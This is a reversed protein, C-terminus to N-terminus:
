EYWQAQARYMETYAGGKALLDAHTGDEVIRGDRLVIIRDVLSTIGLRHSILITTRDGTLETFNRYLNAEAIPDLAATPEDLIMINAGSRYACRTLAIKQWQGGSLNQGTTSFNGIQEDLKGPKDEIVESAGTKAAISYIDADDIAKSVDSLVINERLTGEYQGFDQFVASITKKAASLNDKVNKGGIYIAGQNPEYLGCLLSVLTTKGSGNEGIVAVKEGQKISFSVDHFIERQTNPYKFCVGEFSIDYKELPRALPDREEYELKELDFFDKMYSIDSFFQTIRIFINSATEQLSGALTFVLMFAGIGIAPQEFIDIAAIVLIAIYVGNRCLDAIANLLVHKATLKNRVTIQRNKMERWKDKIYNFVGFFRVENLSHQWTLEFFYSITMNFEHTWKVKRIYEEDKSMYSFIVSPICAVCLIAVIWMNVASLAIVISAFSIVDQFWTVIMQMSGAVRNGADTDVFQIKDKFDDYNEIYKYKVNSCCRVIHEKNYRQINLSDIAAFYNRLSKYLQQAIYICILLVFSGIAGDWIDSGGAYSDQIADSLRSLVSAIATPLLALPFGLLSVLVSPKSKTKVSIALAKGFIAASEKFSIRQRRDSM